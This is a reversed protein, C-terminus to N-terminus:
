HKIQAYSTTIAGFISIDFRFLLELFKGDKADKNNSFFSFFYSASDFSAIIKNM